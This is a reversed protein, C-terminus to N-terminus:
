GSGLLRRKLSERDIKGTETKPLQDVHFIRAVPVRRKAFWEILHSETVSRDAVVAVSIEELNRDGVSGFAAAETVEPHKHLMQEIAEPAIKLGGVNIINSTRGSVVLLGDPMIRGTDGPYFWGDRFNPNEAGPPYPAGLAATRIRVIGDADVPLPNGVEDVIEMEAWPAVFGTSGEVGTLRDAPASATPGTETAGYQNTISSCLRARADAVIARSILGGGTVITRLSGTPVPERTQEGVLESLQVASVAMADVNYVAIVRLAERPSGAFVLTRGAFLAHAAMLYGWGSGLGVRLLLRDWVGLGILSYHVMTRLQFAGVSLSIAKPRGTTGSTAAVYCIADESAFGRAPRTTLPRREGSFWADDVVVQRLGPKLPVAAGHLYAGVPLELKLVQGPQDSLLVPHGLRFLAAGLILQRIPSDITLCVL